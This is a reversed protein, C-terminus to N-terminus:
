ETLIRKNIVYEPSYMEYINDTQIDEDKIKGGISGSRRGGKGEVILQGYTSTQVTQKNSVDLRRTTVRIDLIIVYCKFKLCNVLQLARSYYYKLIIYPTICWFRKIVVITVVQVSFTLILLRNHSRQSLRSLTVSFTEQHVMNSQLNQLYEWGIQLCEVLCFSFGLTYLKLGRRPRLTSSCWPEDELSCM